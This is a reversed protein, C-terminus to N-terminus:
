KVAQKEQAGEALEKSRKMIEGKRQASKKIKIILYPGGSAKGM